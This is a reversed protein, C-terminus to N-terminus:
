NLIYKNTKNEESLVKVWERGSNTIKYVPLIETNKIGEIICSIPQYGLWYRLKLFFFKDRYYPLIIAIWRWYVILWLVYVIEHFGKRSFFRFM